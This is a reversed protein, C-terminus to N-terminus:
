AARIGIGFRSRRLFLALAAATAPVVLLILLHGGTFTAPFWEYSWKFPQPPQPVNDFNFVKPLLLEVVQFLQAIGITAVTLQLRPARAFRRIFLIEVLAFFALIWLGTKLASRVFSQDLTM